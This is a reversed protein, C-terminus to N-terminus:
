EGFFQPAEHHSVYSEHLTTTKSDTPEHDYGEEYWRWAVPNGNQRSIFEIDHKIGALDHEPDLDQNTVAKADRGMFTLPLSAFTVNASINGDKYDERAAGKPQRNTKTQDFQSGFFPEPDEVIPLKQSPGSHNGGTIARGDPRLRVWQTEGSQGALMAIANPTSPANQAAFINDFLVFRSAYQWLFPITDCDVHSMVVRAFQTGKANDSPGGKGAFHNYEVFAFQDMAATNGSVHLKRALNDRGHASGDSVNANEDPGILFPEVTVTEGSM